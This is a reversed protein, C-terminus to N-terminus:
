KFQNVLWKWISGLSVLITTLITFYTYLIILAHTM